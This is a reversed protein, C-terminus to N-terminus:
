AAGGTGVACGRVQSKEREVGWTEETQALLEEAEWSAEGLQAQGLSGNGRSTSAGPGRVESKQGDGLVAQPTSGWFHVWVSM